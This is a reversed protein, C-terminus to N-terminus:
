PTLTLCIEEPRAASLNNYLSLELCAPVGVQFEGKLFVFRNSNAPNPQLIYALGNGRDVARVAYAAPATFLEERVHFAIAQYSTPTTGVMVITLYTSDAAFVAPGEYGPDFPNSRLRDPDVEGKGCSLALLGLLVAISLLRMM